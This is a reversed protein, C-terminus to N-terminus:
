FQFQFTENSFKIKDNNFLRCEKEKELKIDNVFTGNKSGLDLLYYSEEKKIIKAHERSVTNNRLPLNCGESKGIVFQLQNIFYREKSFPKKLYPFDDILITEYELCYTRDVMKQKEIYGNKKMSGEKEQHSIILFGIISICLIVATHAILIDVYWKLIFFEILIALINLGIFSCFFVKHWEMDIKEKEVYRIRKEETEEKKRINEDLFKKLKDLGFKSDNILFLLKKMKEEEYENAKVTHEVLKNILLKINSLDEERDEIKTPKYAFFLMDTDKEYFIKEFDYTINKHDLLHEDTRKLIDMICDLKAFLKEVSLYNLILFESLKILGEVDYYLLYVGDRVVVNLNMMGKINNAHMMNMQVSSVARMTECVLYRKTSINEIFWKENNM